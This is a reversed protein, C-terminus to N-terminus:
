LAHLKVPSKVAACIFILQNNQKGKGQQAEDSLAFISFPRIFRRLLNGDILSAFEM